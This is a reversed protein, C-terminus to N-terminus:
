ISFERAGNIYQEKLTKYDDFCIVMDEGSDNKIKLADNIMSLKSCLDDADKAYIGILGMCANYRVIDNARKPMDIYVDPIASIIELGEISGITGERKTFLHYSAACGQFYNTLGKPLDNKTHKIGLACELMWKVTNFGTVKKYPVYTMVGGFRHGMELLYFSGDQDLICDVWAIGERCDAIKLARIVSDNVTKLYKKLNSYTTCKLSYINEKEGPQHHTSNFYLFEAEGQALVYHVNFELGSLRREVIIEGDSISRAYKYGAILEEKTNCYSMGRNGSKDAPKVVVPYEIKALDEETLNDSLFYEKAIPANAKKCIRKFEGKDRAVKWAYDSECYIPLGLRKCLERANNINFDSAGYMVASIHNEKCKTELLDIDTTSILWSEDSLKKTPSNKMLDATIVYLNMKHAERVVEITGYDSGLILIKQKNM